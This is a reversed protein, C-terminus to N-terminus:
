NNKQKTIWDKALTNWVVVSKVKSNEEWLETWIEDGNAFDALCSYCLTMKSFSLDMIDNTIGCQTCEILVVKNM